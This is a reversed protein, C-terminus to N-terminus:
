VTVNYFTKEFTEGKIVVIPIITKNGNMLYREVERKFAEYRKELFERSVRIFRIWTKEKIPCYDMRVANQEFNGGDYHIQYRWNPIGNISEIVYTDM